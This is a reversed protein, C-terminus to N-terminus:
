GLTVLEEANTPHIAVTNDFDKKCAGMKIAVSFGQLMEDAGLGIIHCGIIKENPKLTILKMKSAIKQNSLAYFLSTFKTQYITLRDRGYLDIADQESLGVSGIPPHSFVVTPINDYDLYAEKENGFIRTALRRGAAIAVPTLLKKGTVDGIAYIHPVNTTEGKDAVIFGKEDITVNAAHLNLQQTRPTRGIAFLISDIDSITKQNNCHVALRNQNCRVIENVKHHSLVQIGQALMNDMLADSILSDFHRLPKDYRLLLKVESGLQNFISALEVAVYGAGVIVVKKPQHKLAFFGNSNISWEEGKVTPQTPYCGTAIVIHDATYYENNVTITNPNVFTALGQIYRISADQLQQRYLQNLQIIYQERRKVLEEFNFLTEKHQFGYAKGVHDFEAMEGAYWMMKKPVCGVNVCTGGIRDMEIVAVRVGYTAAKKAMALGGSGGGIVLLDFETTMINEM